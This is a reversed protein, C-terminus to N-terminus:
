FHRKFKANLFCIVKHLSFLDLFHFLIKLFNFIIFVKLKWSFLFSYVNSMHSFLIFIHPFIQKNFNKYMDIYIKQFKVKMWDNFMENYFVDLGNLFNRVRALDNKDKSVVDRWMDVEHSSKLRRCKRNGVVFIEKGSTMRRSTENLKKGAVEENPDFSSQFILDFYRWAVLLSSSKEM